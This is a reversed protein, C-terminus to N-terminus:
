IATDWLPQELRKWKKKNINSQKNKNETAFNCKKQSVLTM